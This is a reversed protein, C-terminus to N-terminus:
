NPVQYSKYSYIVTVNATITFRGEQIPPPGETSAGAVQFTYPRPVPGQQVGREIIKVPIPHLYAGITQVLVAAKKGANIVAKSLAEQYYKEPNSVLFQITGSRNAGNQIAADYVLGTITLDQITVEFLHEVEYGRLVSKGEIYDYRPFISYTVTTIDSENIGLNKLAVIIQNSIRTNEKQALQINPNETAVGINIKAQDPTTTVQGKGEVTVTFSNKVTSHHRRYLEERQNFYM